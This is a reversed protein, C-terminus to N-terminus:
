SGYKRSELALLQTDDVQDVNVLLLSLSPVGAQRAIQIHERIIPLPGQTADVVIV